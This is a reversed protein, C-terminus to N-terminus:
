TYGSVKQRFTFLYADIFDPGYQPVAGIGGNHFYKVTVTYFCDLGSYAPVWVTRGVPFSKLYEPLKLFGNDLLLTVILRKFGSQMLESVCRDDFVYYQKIQNFGYQYFM